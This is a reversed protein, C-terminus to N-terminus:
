INDTKKEKKEEHGYERQIYAQVEAEEDETLDIIEEDEDDDVVVPTSPTM